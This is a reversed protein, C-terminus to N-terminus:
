SKTGCAAARLHDVQQGVFTTLEALGSRTAASIPLCTYRHRSCYSQLAALREGEGSIDIKTAVIAFPRGILSPDYSELERRMVEFSEIPQEPAWESVDILHLLFSTREIHRLFQFGLGKGEHAGEILGPIDAVVFTRDSAWQVVGLNPTLTTFPYGAIKPRAASIAAILTSKGANPYGVLGVDALLKLELRLQRQQGQTGHEFHTPVRNTSTAFNGNGRGGRGGQAITVTVGDETLDALIEGTDDDYVVTGVPLGVIVCKGRRGTCNSGAGPKGDEAEYHKQYRLDLLTTLRHSATFIVDGGNGGDGGDPGGRPVFMERRFSCVGDGGRGSRVTIRVEDVFM